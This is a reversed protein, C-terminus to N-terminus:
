PENFGLSLSFIYTVFDGSCDKQRRNFTLDVWTGCGNEWVFVHFGLSVSCPDNSPLELREYFAPDAPSPSM